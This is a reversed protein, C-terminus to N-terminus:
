SATMTSKLRHLRGKITGDLVTNGVRVLIGGVLTPDVTCELALACNFRKELRDKVKKLADAELPVATVISGPTIGQHKNLFDIFLSHASLLIEPRNKDIVVRLFNLTYESADKFLKDIVSRKAKRELSPNFLFKKLDPNENVTNDFSKLDEAVRDEIGKEVAVEFLPEVYRRAIGGGSM